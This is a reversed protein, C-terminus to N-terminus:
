YLERLWEKDEASLLALTKVTVQKGYGGPYSSEFERLLQRVAIEDQSQIALWLAMADRLVLEINYEIFKKATVM